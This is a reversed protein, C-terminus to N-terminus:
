GALTPYDTYGREDGGYFTPQDPENLEAGAKWRDILDPNALFPRGVAVADAVGSELLGAMEDRDSELAFGTNLVLPGGWIGRLKGLIPDDPEALVHLYALDLVALQETLVEYVSLDTESIDNFSNGPSIRIGLRDAGIAEVIARAVELVFRARNEPTGGYEDTRENVGDALFQHPLYGNAAHLEVADAGADVVRRAADAYEAVVAPIEAVSLARPESHPQLGNATFIEGGARIASASVPQAGTTDVHSIRGAHMLQVALLGGRAHVQEAARAWGAQQADTHAGPTNPYGQGVASPQTGESVILGAQARQAYYTAMLENPTGDRDARNRTLPAMLVRNPLELAGARLTRLLPNDANLTPISM